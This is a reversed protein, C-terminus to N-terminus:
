YDRNQTLTLHVPYIGAVAMHIVMSQWDCTVPYDACTMKGRCKDGMIECVTDQYEKVIVSVIFQGTKSYIYIYIHIYTYIYIPMAVYTAVRLSSSQGGIRDEM